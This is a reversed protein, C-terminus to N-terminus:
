IETERRVIADEGTGKQTLGVEPEDSPVPLPENTEGDHATVGAQGDAPRAQTEGDVTPRSGDEALMLNQNSALPTHSM